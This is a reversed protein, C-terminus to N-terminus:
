PKLSRIYAVIAELEPATLSVSPMPPHPDIIFSRLREETIAPDAALQAFAPVGDSVPGRQEPTVLHCGSCLDAALQRGTVPDSAWAPLAAGLVIGASLGAAAIASKVIRSKEVM